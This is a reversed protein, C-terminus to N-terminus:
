ESCLRQTLGTQTQLPTGAEARRSVRVAEIFGEMRKNMKDMSEIIACILGLLVLSWVFYYIGALDLEIHM